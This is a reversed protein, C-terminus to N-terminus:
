EVKKGDAATILGWGGTIATLLLASDVHQGNLYSIAATVVAGLITLIGLITTKPHKFSV